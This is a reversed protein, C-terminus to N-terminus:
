LDGGNQRYNQQAANTGRILNISQDRSQELITGVLGEGLRIEVVSRVDQGDSGDSGRSKSPAVIRGHNTPAFFEDEYENIRYIRGPSVDGGGARAGGYGLVASLTTNPVFGSGSSSGGFLNLGGSGGIASFLSGFLGKGNTSVSIMEQLLSALADKVDFTGDVIRLLQDDLTQGLREAAEQARERAEQVAEEAKEQQSKLDILKIIEQGEKSAADVGAQRLSTIKERDAESKGSVLLEERLSDVVDDYAKKEKAAAAAAQARSREAAKAAKEQDPSTNPIDPPTWTTSAKREREHLRNNLINTIAADKATLEAMDRNLAGISTNRERSTIGTNNKLALIRNEIDLRQKAISIQNNELTSDQQNQFDRWGDLFEFLSDAASVIASKLTTGVVTALANFRRQAEEAKKLFDEDMVVGFARAEQRLEGISRAGERLMQSFQEAGTGGFMEDLVRIQAAKDLQRVREIITEFMKAPDQLRKAVDDADMGLRAFSEAASGGGTKVFEDARLQMEKLGDTLAEVGVLNQDAAYKLEQFAEFDLGATRAAQGLENVSHIATTTASVIAPIGLAAALGAAGGAAAKVRVFSAAIDAVSTRTARRVRDLANEFGRPDGSITVPIDPRTM